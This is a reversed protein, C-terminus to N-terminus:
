LTQVVPSWHFSALELQQSQGVGLASGIYQMSWLRCNLLCSNSCTYNTFYISDVVVPSLSLVLVNTFPTLMPHLLCCNLGDLVMMSLLLIFNCNIMWLIRLLLFDNCLSM